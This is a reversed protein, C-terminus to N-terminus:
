RVELFLAKSSRTWFDHNTIQSQHIGIRKTHKPTALNKAQSRLKSQRCRFVCNHLRTKFNLTNTFLRLRTTESCRKSCKSTMEITSLLVSWPFNNDIKKVIITVTKADVETSIGRFITRPLFLVVFQAVMMDNGHDTIKISGLEQGTLARSIM